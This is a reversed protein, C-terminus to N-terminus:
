FSDWDNRHALHQELFGGFIGDTVDWDLGFIYKAIPEAILGGFLFQQELYFLGM